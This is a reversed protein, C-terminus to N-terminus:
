SEIGTFLYLAQFRASFVLFVRSTVLSFHALSSSRHCLSSGFFNSSILFRPDPFSAIILLWVIGLLFFSPTLRRLLPFVSIHRGTLLRRCHITFSAQLVGYDNFSQQEQSILLCRPSSLPWVLSILSHHPDRIDSLSQFVLFFVDEAKVSFCEPLTRESFCVIDM